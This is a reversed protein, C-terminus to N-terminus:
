SQQKASKPSNEGGPAGRRECKWREARAGESVGAACYGAKIERIPVELDLM